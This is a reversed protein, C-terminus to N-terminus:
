KDLKKQSEISSFLTKFIKGTPIVGKNSYYEKQLKQTYVTLNRTKNDNQVDINEV